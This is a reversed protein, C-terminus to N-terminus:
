LSVSIFPLSSDLSFVAAASAGSNFKLYSSRGTRSKHLESSESLGQFVGFVGFESVSIM